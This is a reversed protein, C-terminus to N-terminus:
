RTLCRDLILSKVKKDNEIIQFYQDLYKLARKKTAPNLISKEIVSIIGEKKGRHVLLSPQLQDNLDCFGRYIRENVSEIELQDAPIAYPAGVIGAYDFDYPVVVPKANDIDKPIVIKINHRGFVTWDTNGIMYQFLYMNTVANTDMFKDKVNIMESPISNTREALQEEEEIIFAYGSSEENKKGSNIFTVEVLRVRFSFPSLINYLKYAYYESLVYQEYAAGKRCSVVMKMKDFNQLQTMFVEKKPFNVRLPPSTCTKLRMNGRPKVKIDRNIWVTDNVQYRLRALSYEDKFRRASIKKFDARLTVKLPTEDAFLDIDRLVKEMVKEFSPDNRILSDFDHEQAFADVGILLIVLFAPIKLKLTTHYLNAM